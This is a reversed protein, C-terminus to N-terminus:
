KEGTLGLFARVADRQQRLEHLEKENEANSAAVGRLRASLSELFGAVGELTVQSSLTPGVMGGSYPMSSIAAAVRSEATSM